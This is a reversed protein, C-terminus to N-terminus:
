EPMDPWWRNGKVSNASGPIVQLNAECHLGCVLPSILPVIHDVHWSYGLMKTRLKALAYAEEIFFKNAWAPMANRKQARRRAKKAMVKEGNEKEWRLALEKYRERNSAYYEKQKKRICDKNDAYHKKKKNSIHKDNQDRYEKAKAARLTRNKEYNNKVCLKCWTQLGDKRASCVSFM